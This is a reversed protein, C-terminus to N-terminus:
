ARYSLVAAGISLRVQDVVARMPRWLQPLQRRLYALEDKNATRLVVGTLGTADSLSALVLAEFDMPMSHRIYHALMVWPAAARTSSTPVYQIGDRRLFRRTAERKLEGSQMLREAVQDYAHVSVFALWTSLDHVEPERAISQFVMHATADQPPTPRPTVTLHGGEVWIKQEVLLEGLLAAALGLAITHEALLPRGSTDDHTLRFFDDAIM